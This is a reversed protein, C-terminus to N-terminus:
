SLVYGISLMFAGQAHGLGSDGGSAGAGLPLGALGDGGVDGVAGHHGGVAFPEVLGGALGGGCM